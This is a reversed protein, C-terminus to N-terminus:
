KIEEVNISEHLGDNIILEDINQVFLDRMLRARNSESLGEFLSEDHGDPHFTFEIFARYMPAYQSKAM